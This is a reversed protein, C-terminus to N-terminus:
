NWHPFYEIVSIINPGGQFERIAGHYSIGGKDGCRCIFMEGNGINAPKGSHHALWRESLTAHPCILLGPTRSNPEEIELYLSFCPMTQQSNKSPREPAKFDAATTAEDRPSNPISSEMILVRGGDETSSLRIPPEYKGSSKTNASSLPVAENELSPARKTSVRHIPEKDFSTSFEESASDPIRNLIQNLVRRAENNQLSNELLWKEQTSLGEAYVKESDYSARPGRHRSSNMTNMFM